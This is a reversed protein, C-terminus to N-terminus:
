DFDILYKNIRNPEVKVVKVQKKGLDANTFVCRYEGAPIVQDRFPSDGFKFQGCEVNTGARVIFHMTGLPKAKVNPSPLGPADPKMCKLTYHRPELDATATFTDSISLCGPMEVRVSVQKGEEREFTMPLTGSTGDGFLVTAGSPESQLSVSVRGERVPKPAPVNDDRTLLFPLTM